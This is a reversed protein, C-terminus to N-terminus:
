DADYDGDRNSVGGEHEIILNRSRGRRSPLLEYECEADVNQVEGNELAETGEGCWSRTFLGRM